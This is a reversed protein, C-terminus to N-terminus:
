EYESSIPPNAIMSMEPRPVALAMDHTVIVLAMRREAHLEFLLGKSAYIANRAYWLQGCSMGRYSQAVAAGTSLLLVASVAAALVATTRRAKDFPRPMSSQSM